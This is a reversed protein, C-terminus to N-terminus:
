FPTSYESNTTLDKDTLTKLFAVLDKKDQETKILKQKYMIRKKLQKVKLNHKTELQKKNIQVSNLIQFRCNDHFIKGM